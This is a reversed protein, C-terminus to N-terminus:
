WDSPTTNPTPNSRPTSRLRFQRQAGATVAQFDFRLLVGCQRLELVQSPRIDFHGPCTGPEALRLVSFDEGLLDHVAAELYSTTTAIQPHVPLRASRGCGILGLAVLPISIVAPRM